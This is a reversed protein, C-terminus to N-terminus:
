LKQAFKMSAIGLILITATGVVLCIIELTGLRFPPLSAWIALLPIVLFAACRTPLWDIIMDIVSDETSGTIVKTQRDVAQRLTVFIGVSLFSLIGAVAVPFRKASFSLGLVDIQKYAKVAQESAIAKANDLDLAGYFTRLRDRREGDNYLALSADSEVGLAYAMSIMGVKVFTAPCRIEQYNEFARHQPPLPHALQLVVAKHKTDAHFSDVRSMRVASDQGMGITQKVPLPKPEPLEITTAVTIKRPKYLLEFHDLQEGVNKAQRVSFERRTNFLQKTEDDTFVIDVASFRGPNQKMRNLTEELPFGVGALQEILAQRAQNCQRLLEPHNAALWYNFKYKPDAASVQASPLNDILKLGEYDERYDKGDINAVFVVLALCSVAVLQATLTNLRKALAVKFVRQTATPGRKGRDSSEDQQM